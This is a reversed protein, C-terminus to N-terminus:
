PDPRCKGQGLLSLGTLDGAGFSVVGPTESPNMVHSPDNVHDLGVVHGVEHEIVARVQETGLEASMRQLVPGNLEVQGSVYTFGTNGFSVAESCGLGRVTEGRAPNTFKAQEAHTEWAAFEPQRTGNGSM